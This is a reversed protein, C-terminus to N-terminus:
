PALHPTVRIIFGEDMPAIILLKRGEVPLRPSEVFRPSGVFSGALV